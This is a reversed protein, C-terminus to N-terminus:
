SEASVRGGPNEPHEIDIGTRHLSGKGIIIKFDQLYQCVIGRRRQHAASQRRGQPRHLGPNRAQPEVVNKLERINGRWSHGTLAATTEPSLQPVQRGMELSARQTFHTALPVIDERRQRLPPLEIPFVNLRYFLDERFTGEALAKKLDRNTAAIIRVDCAVTKAGGVRVVERQQVAALRPGLQASLEGVVESLGQRAAEGLEEQAAVRVGVVLVRRQQELGQEGSEAGLVYLGRHLSIDERQVLRDLRLTREVPQQRQELVQVQRAKQVAGVRGGHGVGHLRAHGEEVMAQDLEDVRERERELRALQARSGVQAIERAILDALDM